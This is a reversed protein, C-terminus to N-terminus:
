PPPPESTCEWVRLGEARAVKALERDATILVSKSDGCFIKYKGHLITVIQVCDVFDLDYKKIRTVAESLLKDSLIPIEEIELKWGVTRNIFTMVDNVYEDKSIRGRLFKNKFVSLAELFCHSTTMMSTHTEYYKRVATRGPEEDSDDAVLKVLASADLYHVKVAYREIENKEGM